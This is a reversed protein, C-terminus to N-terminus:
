KSFSFPLATKSIGRKFNPTESMKFQLIGGKTIDFHSLYNKDYNIGNLTASQIYVNKQNNQPAEIIFKKGNELSL